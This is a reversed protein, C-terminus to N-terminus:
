RAQTMLDDIAVELQGLEALEYTAEKTLVKIFEQKMDLGSHHKQLDEIAEPTIRTKFTHKAVRNDDDDVLALQLTYFTM